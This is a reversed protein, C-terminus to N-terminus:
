VTDLAQEIPTPGEFLAFSKGITAPKELCLVLAQALKIRSTRGEDAPKELLNDSVTIGDGCPDDILSGPCLITWDLSNELVEHCSRLFDDAAGKARHYHKIRSQSNIDAGISSLMVYRRVGNEAATVMSRIAGLHDVTVTKDKGTKSGSGVAFIVADVDKIVDDLPCELDALVAEIGANEFHACQEPKRVAAIPAHGREKLIDVVLRGTKGNAGLVMVRM